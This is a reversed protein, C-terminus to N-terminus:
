RKGPKVRLRPTGPAVSPSAPLFSGSALVQGSADQLAIQQWASIALAETPLPLDDGDSSSSFTVHLNGSASTFVTGLVIGDVVLTIASFGPLAFAMLKLEQPLPEAGPINGFSLFLHGEGEANTLISGAHFGDVFVEYIQGPLLQEVAVQLDERVVSGAQAFSRIWAVGEAEPPAAATAQLKLLAFRKESFPPYTTHCLLEIESADFSSDLRFAGEVKVWSGIAITGHEHKIQTTEFVHVVVGAVTWDGVLGAEPLSEVAGVLRQYEPPQTRWRKM